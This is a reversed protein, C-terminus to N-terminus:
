SHTPTSKKRKKIIFAILMALPGTLIFAFNATQEATLNRIAAFIISVIFSIVISIILILFILFAIKWKSIQLKLYHKGLQITASIMLGFSIINILDM